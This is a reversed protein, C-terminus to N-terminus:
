TADDSAPEELTALLISYILCYNLQIGVAEWKQALCSGGILGLMLLFGAVLAPRQAKGTLLWLGLVFETAPIALAFFPLVSQPVPSTKFFEQLYGLFAGNPGLWRALGHLFVSLALATRLLNRALSRNTM